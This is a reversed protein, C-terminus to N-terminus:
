KGSMSQKRMRWAEDFTSLDKRLTVINTRLQPWDFQGLTAEAADIDKGLQEVNIILTKDYELVRKLTPERIEDARDFLPAYGYDARNVAFSLRDITQIIKKCEKGIANQDNELVELYVKEWRHRLDNMESFYRERLAKDLERLDEKKSYGGTLFNEVTSVIGKRYIDEEEAPKDGKSKGGSLFNKIKDLIGENSSKTEEPKADMLM